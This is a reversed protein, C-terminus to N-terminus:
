ARVLEREREGHEEERRGRKKVVVGRTREERVRLERGKAQAKLTIRRHAEAARVFAGYVKRCGPYDGLMREPHWQLGVRFKGRAPDTFSPDYFGEILGDPSYCLPELGRALRKVGQHHYSNVSLYGVQAGGQSGEFAEPFWHALPTDPLVSIPHRHGDYNDYDMHQVHGGVEATVDCYLSGGMAVNLLQSGRCLGLYPVGDSLVKEKILRMELADKADDIECDSAYKSAIEALVESELDPGEEGFPQYQEGIDSGEMLLVGDIGGLTFADLQDLTKMTRPLLIPAAGFEQLLDIHYEGVFDVFKGKRLHRRSVVLIRPWVCDNETDTKAEKENYLSYGLVKNSTHPMCMAPTASHMRPGWSITSSRTGSMPRIAFPTVFASSTAILSSLTMVM